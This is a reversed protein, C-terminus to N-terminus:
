DGQGDGMVLRLLEYLVAVYERREKKSRTEILLSLLERIRERDVM